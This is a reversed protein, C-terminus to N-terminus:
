GWVEPNVPHAPRRGELADLLGQAALEAMRARTGHTASGIHPALTVNDLALLPDDPRLPEEEFVDLGAAALPGDRLAAALAPQDVIPGRATNVLIAGQRMAGLEAAGILGQTEATLACHVSVFDSEALVEALSAYRAGYRGEVDLKRTRSTYIVDMGFAVARRTVAQGIAGMGVIGLTSGFLDRGWLLGPEYEGWQGSRVYRDAESLRRAAALMLGFALEATTDVLVGPTNTVAVGYKTAADVDIYDFGVGFGTVARLRPAAALIPENLRDTPPMAFVGEVGDAVRQHTVEPPAPLKGEWVDVDCRARLLALGSEPYGWSCFVRPRAGSSTSEAM